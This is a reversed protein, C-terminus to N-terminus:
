EPRRLSHYLNWTWGRADVVGLFLASIEPVLPYIVSTNAVERNFMTVYGNKVPFVVGTILRRLGHVSVQAYSEAMAEELYKILASGRYSAARGEIRVRRLIDLRPTLVRHFSEHLAALRRDTATGLRSITIEGWWSTEGTAAAKSRVARLGPKLRFGAAVPPAGVPGRGRFSMPTRKLLLAIVTQVGLVSVARALYTAAGDLEGTTRAGLAGRGFRVLEDIGTFVNLGVSIAGAALFIADVVFGIGAAHSILWAVFFAAATALAEPTLLPALQAQVEPGLKGFGRKIAEAIREVESMRAVELDTVKTSTM